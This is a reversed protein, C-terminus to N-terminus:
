ARGELVFDNPQVLGHTAAFVRRMEGPTPTRTGKLWRYVSTTSVGVDEAFDAVRTGTADLYNRLQM